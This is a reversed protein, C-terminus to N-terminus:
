NLSVYLLIDVTSIVLVRLKDKLPTSLIACIETATTNSIENCRINVSSISKDYSCYPPADVELSEVATAKGILGGLYLGIGLSIFLGVLMLVLLKYMTIEYFVKKGSQAIENAKKKMEKRMKNQNKVKTM